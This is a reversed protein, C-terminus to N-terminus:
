GPRNQIAVLVDDEFYLFGEQGSGLWDEFRGTYVWQERVKNGAVTDRNVHHPKGWRTGHLVQEATMGIAADPLEGLKGLYGLRAHAVREHLAFNEAWLQDTRAEEAATEDEMATTCATTSAVLLAVAFLKSPYAM